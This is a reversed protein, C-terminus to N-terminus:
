LDIAELVHQRLGEQRQAALLLKEVYEWADPRNCTMLATTVHRGMSGIEHEGNASAILTQMVREGEDGGNDIAAALVRGITGGGWYQALYPAWEALWVADADYGELMSTLQSLWNSRASGTIGPDSPARFALQGLYPSSKYSQWATEIHHALKPFVAAFSEIRKAEPLQDLHAADKALKDEREQQQLLWDGIDDGPKIVDLNTLRRVAERDAKPLKQTRKKAVSQWDSVKMAKLRESAQENSLM